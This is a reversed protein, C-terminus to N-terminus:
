KCGWIGFRYSPAVETYEAVQFGATTLMHEVANRDWAWYHELNGDDWADVPTSLLLMRTKDRIQKLVTDPDDLHELTECCVFLDVDPIEFITQEIPGTIDYGPALDGFHRVQAPLTSLISGNGCSLDAATEVGPGALRCGVAITVDVRAQHDGWHRHDHPTAYIRALEDAPWAPRLRERRM